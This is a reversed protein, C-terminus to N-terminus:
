GKEGSDGGGVVPGEKSLELIVVHPGGAPVGRTWLFLETEKAWAGSGSAATGERGDPCGAM